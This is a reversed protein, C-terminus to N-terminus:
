NSKIQKFKSFIMKLSKLEFSLYVDDKDRSHSKLLYTIEQSRIVVQVNIVMNNMFIYESFTKICYPNRTYYNLGYM